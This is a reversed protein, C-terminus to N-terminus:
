ARTVREQFDLIVSPTYIINGLMNDIRVDFAYRESPSLTATVAASLSLNIQGLLGTETNLVLQPNLNAILNGKGHNDRLEATVVRGTLDWPTRIAFTPSSGIKVRVKPQTLM